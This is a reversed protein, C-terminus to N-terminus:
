SFLNFIEQLTERAIQIIRASGNYAQQFRLLQAAEVDLDVGTVEDLQLFAGDKQNATASQEAKAAAVSQAHNSVLLSWAAEPGTSNRYNKLALANGNAVGTSAAAIKSLDTTSITLTAATTGSVLAAGANGDRDIGAQNWTNIVNAFNAAIVDLSQRRAAISNAVDALGALSGSQPSMTVAAGYGSAMLSLRGDSAQIMGIYSPGTKAADVLHVSADGQLTVDARGDDQLKVDIGIAGSINKLLADRQDMLLAKGASGAEARRLATNIQALTQLDGNLKDITNQAATAVGEAASQLKSATTNFQYAADTLATLVQQRNTDSSVDASLAEASTFVTSMKVGLGVDSDDLAAEATTLWTAKADARAAESNAFRAYSSRYNDFVRQVGGVEVGGFVASSRYIYNNSTSVASEGLSVTRRTYGETEANSVNEGVTSLAARYAVVGSRGINLLDSM